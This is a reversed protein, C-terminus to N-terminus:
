CALIRISPSIQAAADRSNQKGVNSPSCHSVLVYPYYKQVQLSSGKTIDRELFGVSIALYEQIMKLNTSGKKKWSSIESLNQIVFSLVNSSFFVERHERLEPPILFGEPLPSNFSLSSVARRFRFHASMEFGNQINQKITYWLCANSESKSNALFRITDVSHTM